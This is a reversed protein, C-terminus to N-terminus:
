HSSNLRTSKRDLYSGGIGIVVIVQSIASLREADKQINQLMEDTIEEPLNLWGLFEKGKGKGKLLVSHKRIVEKYINELTSKGSPPLANTINIKLDTM